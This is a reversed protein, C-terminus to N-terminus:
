GGVVIIDNIERRPSCGSRQLQSIRRLLLGNPMLIVASPNWDSIAAWNAPFRASASKRVARDFSSLRARFYPRRLQSYSNSPRPIRTHSSKIRTASASTVIQTHIVAGQDRPLFDSAASHASAVPRHLRARETLHASRIAGSYVAASQPL